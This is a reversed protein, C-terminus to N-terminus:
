NSNLRIVILKLKFKEEIELISDEKTSISITKSTEGASFYISQNIQNFDSGSKAQCPSSKSTM